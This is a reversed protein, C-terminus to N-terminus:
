EEDEEQGDWREPPDRWKDPACRLYDGSAEDYEFYVVQAPGGFPRDDELPRVRKGKLFTPLVYESGWDPESDSGMSVEWEWAHGDRTVCYVRDPLHEPFDTVARVTLSPLDVVFFPRTGAHAERLASPYVVHLLPDIYAPGVSWRQERRLLEFWEEPAFEELRKAVSTNRVFDYMVLCTATSGPREFRDDFTVLYRGDAVGCWSWPVYETLLVAKHLARLRQGEDVWEFVWYEAPRVSGAGLRLISVQRPNTYTDLSFQGWYPSYEPRGVERTQSDQACATVLGSCLVLLVTWWARAKCAVNM